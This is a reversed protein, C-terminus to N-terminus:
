FPYGGGSKKIRGKNKDTREQLKKEDDKGNADRIPDPMPFEGDKLKEDFVKDVHLWKGNVWKFGEYDGDPILTWPNDPEDSESVLHDILILNMEPDFNMTTAAEKKYEISYRYQTKRKVSDNAFSFFPGGFQPLNKDNFTLVEIWKKNSRLSNGDYGFLTYYNKGNYKNEIINYYVAGIWNDKTRVSDMANESFESYDRLPVLKLSGDSTKYQIAGRQRIYTGDFNLQWTFIKFSSDPAYLKSVGQVSDFPYYFSNKIQLSRILTKIFLSDSRMRGATLSDTLFNKALVKLSDEKTRLIKVDATSIKKVQAFTCVAVLLFFFIVLPKKM